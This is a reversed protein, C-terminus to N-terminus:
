SFFYPSDKVVSVDFSGKKPVDPLSFPVLIPYDGSGDIDEPANFDYGIEELVSICTKIESALSVDNPDNSKLLRQRELEIKVEQILSPQKGLKKALQSRYHSIALGVPSKKDVKILMFFGDYRREFEGKLKEVLNNKHLRIFEERLVTNMTNVDCAHTWYSDHVSSFSMDYESCKNVSLLMHTADLSHIYNPPFGNAQKRSDVKNIGYPDQIIFTQMNTKVQKSKLTRYPQVVPLGLPSTWIVSSTFESGDEFEADTRISKSIRKAALAFWDQIEHAGSFLHRIAMFVKGTLYKSCKSVGDDDFEIEKLRKTIQARAGVYTVGYVSTMVTQKVLKRSIIPYTLIAEEVGLEKDKEVSELVIKSVHTYVDSPKDGPILNVQKAGEIDGGLAAYHQLGNCTGDQHVPQFSIYKTPDPLELAEILEIASALFQWPKDAKMWWRQGSLPDRVSDRINEINENIFQARDDLSIKDKGMLNSLHIKLWKLGDEGLEKGTWFKLLSRSMDNGLHNFNPPIPYARGRFDLSHPFFIREGVFARAIELKYNMDCRMSKNKSFENKIETCTRRYKFVDIADCGKQPPAPLILQDEAKPIELFETGTNWVKTILELMKKNVSWPTNGLNNLGQLIRDMKKQQSAAKVYSSQEPANKARLVLTRKLFYGGDNHSTWPKPRCVMPLYQAQISQDLRDKGLKNAFSQNLKIVGVKSGNLFDYTHYLAPASATQVEGTRPDTGNVEIKFIRLIFSLLISGVKCLSETDWSLLSSESLENEGLSEKEAKEMMEKAKNSRLFVKFEKTGKIAKFNKQINRDAALIKESKYELEIAKGIGIVLKSVPVGRTIDSTVLHKMVDSIAITAIKESKLVELFPAYLIKEQYEAREEKTLKIDGIEEEKLLKAAKSCEKIDKQIMPTLETLWTHLYAGITSPLSKDKINEFEREWKLKAAEFTSSELVRERSESIQDLIDDFKKHQELPLKNKLEFLNIIGIESDQKIQNMDVNIKELECLQVLQKVFQGDNYSDVLGLLSHRINKLNEASVSLLKEMNNDIVENTPQMPSQKQDEKISLKIEPTNMQNDEKLEVSTANIPDHPLSSLEIESVPEEKMQNKVAKFLNRYNEPLDDAISPSYDVIKKINLMGIIDVYRLVDANKNSPSLLRFEMLLGMADKSQLGKRFNLNILWAYVRADPMHHSNLSYVHNFWSRIEDMSVSDESGWVKLFECIADVFHTTGNFKSTALNQLMLDAREFDRSELCTEYLSWIQLIETDVRTLIEDRNTSAYLFDGSQRLNPMDSAIRTYVDELSRPKEVMRQEFAFASKATRSVWRVSNCTRRRLIASM